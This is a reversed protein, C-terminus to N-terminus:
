RPCNPLSFTCTPVGADRKAAQKEPDKEKQWAYPSDVDKHAFSVRTLRDGDFVLSATCTWDGKKGSKAGGFLGKPKDDKDGKDSKKEPVPGAGDYHYTIIESGGAAPYRSHPQGACAIVEAKTMGIYAKTPDSATIRNVMDAPGQVATACSGLLVAAALNAAISLYLRMPLLQNDRIGAADHRPKACSVFL